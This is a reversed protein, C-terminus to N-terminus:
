LETVGVELRYLWPQMLIAGTTTAKWGVTSRQDLPDETGASGLQKVISKISKKQLPVVGYANQAMVLITYVDAATGDTSILNNTTPDGGASEHLLANTTGLFRIGRFEGLEEEMVDSQSSYKEVPIFGNLDELNQRLDTHCIGIFGPRIPTTGIKTSGVVKKRIKKANWRELQRVIYKLDDESVSTIVSARDAVGGAYRVSTGSQLIGRIVQDITNGAQEGLIDTAEIVIPDLGEEQLRDSMTTFDGYQDLTASIETASLDSGTPTVGETLATTAPLLSEYRRFTIQNGENKPIPRVQGFRDHLLSPLARELLNRDYYGAINVAIQGASSPVAPKTVNM